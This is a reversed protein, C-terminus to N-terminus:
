QSDFELVSLVAYSATGGTMHIVQNSMVFVPQWPTTKTGIATELSPYAGFLPYTSSEAAAIQQYFTTDKGNFPTAEKKGDVYVNTATATVHTILGTLVLWARGAAPSKGEGTNIVIPQSLYGNFLKSISGM